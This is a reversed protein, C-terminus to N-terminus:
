NLSHRFLKKETGNDTINAFCGLILSALTISKIIDAITSNPLEKDFFQVEAEHNSSFNVGPFQLGTEPLDLWEEM